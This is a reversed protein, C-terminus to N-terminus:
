QEDELAFNINLEGMLISFLEERQEQSAVGFLDHLDEIDVQVKDCIDLILNAQEELFDIMMTQALSRVDEIQRGKLDNLMPETEAEILAQFDAAYARYGKRKAWWKRWMSTSVDLAITQALGVPAPLEPVEPPTVKFNKAEVDFMRTIADTMDQSVERLVQEVNKRFRTSMVTYATRMLSRLGDASYNWVTEDGNEELHKILADLARATYRSNAQDVRSSFSGFLDQLTLDLKRHATQSIERITEEVEEIPMKLIQDSNTSLSVISSSARLSQVINASKRRIHALMKAGPAEGIRDGMATYLQPLGSLVWARSRQDMADLAGDPFMASFADMSAQSAQAMTDVQDLLAMNAWYASGFIMLPDEPGNKEALTKLLGDRIEPIENMPDALEDVRNIFLIIEKSKVSSILRILGMDVTNLAQHASLVVVCVRSERIASITIQERMLFTDNMGPTDRLTLPVPLFPAEFHLEASKTIDAFQGQRNMENGDDFDDGLCVYRQILDDEIANYNHTQGLLMEFRRGLREKTKERMHQVQAAIRAQEKDAGTRETLEGIRGGKDILRDWEDDDFFTFSAVPDDEGRMHGLHVSTVVSTWPNVDAPLLDPRGAAANVLTTKGSKIQGIFTVAPAFADLEMGMRKVQRAVKQGGIAEIDDITYHLDEIELRLDNFAEMGLGMFDPPPASPAAASPQATEQSPADDPGNEFTEIPVHSNM